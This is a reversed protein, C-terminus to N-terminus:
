DIALPFSFCRTWRVGQKEILIVERITAQIPLAAGARTRIDAPVGEACAPDHAERFPRVISEAEPIPVILATM